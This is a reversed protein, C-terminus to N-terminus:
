LLEAPMPSHVRSLWTTTDCIYRLELSVMGSSGANSKDFKEQKEHAKKVRFWLSEIDEDLENREMLKDHITTELEEILSEIM